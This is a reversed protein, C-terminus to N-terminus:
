HQDEKIVGSTDEVNTRGALDSDLVVMTGAAIDSSRQRLPSLLVIALPFLLLDIVRLVNRLAIQWVTARKGSVSITRLGMVWKGATRRTLLELTMTHLIYFLVASATAILAPLEQLRDLANRTNDTRISVIAVTVIVPLADILGAAIRPILPAAKPPSFAPDAEPATSRRYLTAGASLVLAALLGYNLYIQLPSNDVDVPMELMAADGVPKGDPEYRQEYLKGGHIGIVRVYGGAVAIAPLGAPATDAKWALAVPQDSALPDTFLYGASAGESAWLEASGNPAVWQVDEALKAGPLSLRRTPTWGTSKSWQTVDILGHHVTIALSVRDGAVALAVEGGSQDDASRPVLAMPEWAGNVLRFLVDQIPGAPRTSPATAPATTTTPPNDADAIYPATSANAIASQVAALGGPVAGVAYLTKGDDGLARIDANAPLPKGTSAGDPAWVTSWQGDSQLVVAQGNRSALGQVHSSVTALAKWQQGPGAVRVLLDTQEVDGGRPMAAIQFRGVWMRDGAGHAFVEHSVARAAPTMSGILMLAALWGRVKSCKM